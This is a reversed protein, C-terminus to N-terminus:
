YWGFCTIPTKSAKNKNIKASDTQAHHKGSGLFAVNAEKRPSASSKCLWLTYGSSVNAVGAKFKGGTLEMGRM